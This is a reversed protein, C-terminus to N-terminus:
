KLNITKKNEIDINKKCNPCWLYIGKAISNEKSKGILKGCNPCRIDNIM